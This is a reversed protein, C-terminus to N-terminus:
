GAVHESTVGDEMDIISAMVYLDCKSTATTIHAGVAVYQM